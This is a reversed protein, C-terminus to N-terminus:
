DNKALVALKIKKSLRSKLRAAKNKHIIHAKAAKDIQKYAKSLLSLYNEKNIKHDRIAINITKIAMKVKTTRKLNIVRKRESARIAKKASRTNAM